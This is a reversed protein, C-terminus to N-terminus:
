ARDMKKRLHPFLIVDRISEAGTLMMVLRDIGIGIGGAPPMGYELALLFEEDVKQTEGGSQEELRQRQVIPDNLESYGPSIEQGNIVLEYVEVTEGSPSVKALPVLEKPCHTVFVPNISKEEVLKEFLHQTVEFDEHCHTIDLGLEIACKRRGEADLDYWAPAVGRILDAYRARRWPRTLDITRQLNGDEDKHEIVLGGCIKEALHCILEEVLDAMTEFDGYAQYAELMTFEPNHRRSIGENRFNRNLEFVKQFGGVLLRKLYLEPAIRLYLDMDLANHHTQFPAAAAGGPIAQMMPTEVELFGREDMFRRIESVIRLRKQFFDRSRPNSILDLYRQRYKIEQDAIGHWKDPLPRLSKSLVQFGTAHVTPEGMRTIFCHGEVGLFDGIDVQKFISFQEEGLEKGSLYVQLKGSFDSLDLFQSKGMNRHATVRGAFRVTKGEAFAAAVDGVPGDVAFAAGFGDVGAQRLAELKQARIAMLEQLSSHEM